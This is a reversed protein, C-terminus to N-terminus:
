PGKYRFKAAVQEDVTTEISAVKNRQVKARFAAAQEESLGCTQFIIEAADLDIAKVPSVNEGGFTSIFAVRVTGIEPHLDAMLTGKLKPM